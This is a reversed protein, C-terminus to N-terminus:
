GSTVMPNYLYSTEQHLVSLLGGNEEKKNRERNKGKDKGTKEALLIFINGTNLVLHLL